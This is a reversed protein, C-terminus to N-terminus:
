LTDIHKERIINVPDYIPKKFDIVSYIDKLEMFPLVMDTWSHGLVNGSASDSYKYGSPLKRFAAEYNHLAVGIQHLNNRCSTKRASERAAQMAPLLLAVLVGVIAIVVLVELLPIAAPQRRLCNARTTRHM